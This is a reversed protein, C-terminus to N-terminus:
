PAYEESTILFRALMDTVLNRYRVETSLRHLHDNGFREFDLQHIYLM